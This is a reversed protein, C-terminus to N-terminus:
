PLGFPAFIESGVEYVPASIHPGIHIYIEKPCAGYLRRMELLVRENIGANLGMRGSHALAIAGQKPAYFFVPICDATHVGLLSGEDATTLADAEEMSDGGARRVIASNTQRFSHLASFGLAATLKRRNGYAENKEEAPMRAGAGFNGEARLTTGACIETFQPWIFLPM